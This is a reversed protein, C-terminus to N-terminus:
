AWNEMDEGREQAKKDLIWAINDLFYLAGNRKLGFSLKKKRKKKKLRYKKTNISGSKNRRFDGVMPLLHMSLMDATIVVEWSKIGNEPADFNM